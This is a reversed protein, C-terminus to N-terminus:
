LNLPPNFSLPAAPREKKTKSSPNPFTASLSAPVEKQSVLIAIPWINASTGQVSGAWTRHQLTGALKPFRTKFIKERTTTDKQLLAVSQQLNPFGSKASPM